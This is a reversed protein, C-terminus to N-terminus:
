IWPTVGVFLFGGRTLPSPRASLAPAGVPIYRLAEVNM